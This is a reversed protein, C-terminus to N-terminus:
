NVSSATALIDVRRTKKKHLFGNRLGCLSNWVPPPNLKAGNYMFVVLFIHSFGINVFFIYTRMSDVDFFTAVCLVLPAAQLPFFLHVHKGFIPQASLNLVNLINTCAQQASMIFSCYIVLRLYVRVGITTLCRTVMLVINRGGVGFVTM